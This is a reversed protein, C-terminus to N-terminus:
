RPLPPLKLRFGSHVIPKVEFLRFVEENTLEAWVIKEFRGRTMAVAVRPKKELHGFDDKWENVFEYRVNEWEKQGGFIVRTLQISDDVVASDMGEISVQPLSYELTMLLTTGEREASKLVHYPKAKEVIAKLEEGLLPALPERRPPATGPSPAKTCSVGFEGDVEGGYVFWTAKKTAPEVSWVWQTDRPVTDDGEYVPVRGHCEGVLEAKEKDIRFEKLVPATAKGASIEKYRAEVEDKSTPRARWEPSMWEYYAKRFAEESLRRGGRCHSCDRGGRVIGRGNCSACVVILDKRVNHWQNARSLLEQRRLRAQTAAADDKPAPPPVKPADEARAAAGLSACVIVAALWATDRRV